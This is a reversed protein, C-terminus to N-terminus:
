PRMGAAMGTAGASRRGSSTQVAMRPRSTAPGGTGLALWACCDAAGTAFWMAEAARAIAEGLEAGRAPAVSVRWVARDPLEALPEVDRIARWFAISADDEIVARECDAALGALLRERRFAVSPAPGEFRFTAIGSTDTLGAALGTSLPAGATLCAAGSM